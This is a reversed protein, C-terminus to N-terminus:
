YNWHANQSQRRTYCTFDTPKLDLFFCLFNLVDKKLYPSKVIEKKLQEKGYYNVMAVFDSWLGYNMVKDMIYLRDKDYDITTVDTDWFLNQSINPPSMSTILKKPFFM